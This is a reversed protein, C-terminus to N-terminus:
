LGLWCDFILMIERKDYYYIFAAHSALFIHALVFLLLIVCHFGHSAGLIELSSAVSLSFCLGFALRLGTTDPLVLM